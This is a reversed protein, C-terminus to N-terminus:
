STWGKDRGATAPTLWERLQSRARCLRMDVAAPSLDLRQGIERSSLNDYYRMVVASRTVEDLKGLAVDIADRTEDIVVDDLPDSRDDAPDVDIPLTARSRTRRHLDIARNRVLRMLWGGFQAPHKVDGIRQWAAIFADQVVDGAASADALVGYATALASREFRDILEAFADADRAQARQVLQELTDIM